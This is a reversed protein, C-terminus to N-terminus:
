YPKIRATHCFSIASFIHGQHSTTPHGCLSYVTVVVWWCIRSLRWLWIQHLLNVLSQQLHCRYTPSAQHSYCSRLHGPLSYSIASICIEEISVGLLHLRSGEGTNEIFILEAIKLLSCAEWGTLIRRRLSHYFTTLTSSHGNGEEM